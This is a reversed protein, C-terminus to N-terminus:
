RSTISTTSPAPGFRSTIMRGLALSGDWTLQSSRSSDWSSCAVPSSRPRIPMSAWISSARPSASTVAM